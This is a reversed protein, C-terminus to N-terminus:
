IQRLPFPLLMIRNGSAEPQLREVVNLLLAAVRAAAKQSGISALIDALSRNENALLAVFRDQLDPDRHMLGHIDAVKAKMVTAESLTAFGDELPANVLADLTLIEGPLCLRVIQRRGNPMLRYRCAWGEILIYVADHMHQPPVIDRGRDYWAPKGFIEVLQSIDTDEFGSNLLRASLSADMAGTDAEIDM